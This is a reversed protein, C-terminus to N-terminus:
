NIQKREEEKGVETYLKIYFKKEWEKNPSFPPTSLVKMISEKVAENGHYARYMLKAYNFFDRFLWNEENPNAIDETSAKEAYKQYLDVLRNTAIEIEPQFSEEKM